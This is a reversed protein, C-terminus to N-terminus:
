PLLSELLHASAETVRRIGRLTQRDLIGESVFKLSEYGKTGEFILEKTIEPPVGREFRMPTGTGQKAVLHEPADWVEYGMLKEAEAKSVIKGVEM